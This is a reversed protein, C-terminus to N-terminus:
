PLKGYERRFAAEIIAEAAEDWSKEGCQECVAVPITVRCYVPGRDTQQHFTIDENRMIVNGQGCFVCVEAGTGDSM